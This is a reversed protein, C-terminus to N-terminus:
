CSLSRLLGADAIRIKPGEREIAGADTLERLARVIVERVTGSALESGHGHAPQQVPISVADIPTTM